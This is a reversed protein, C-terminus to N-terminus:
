RGHMGIRHWQHHPRGRSPGKKEVGIPTLPNVSGLDTIDPRAYLIWAAKACDIVSGGGIAIIVDPGFERMAGAGTDVNAMPVEPQTESWVTSEFGAAELTATVKRAVTRGFDDTVVFARKKRCLPAFHHVASISKSKGQPFVNAGMILRPM